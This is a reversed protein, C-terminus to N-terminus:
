LSLGCYYMLSAPTGAIARGLFRGKAQKPNPIFKRPTSDAKATMVRRMAVRLAGRHSAYGTTTVAAGRIRGARVAFVYARSGVRRLFLGGGISPTGQLRNAPRGVEIGDALRKNATSGVLQVVGAKDLVAVDAAHTNGKGLVCWSWALNRQQPQGASKLLDVWHAGLHIPGRGTSDIEGDGRFCGHAKVGSTREWMELYAEAGAMMDKAIQPGGVRKLDAFWDAYLGYHAVGDKTFDFTRNGTKQRDFTVKGDYSKFPYTISGKASHGPQHSLGGLDAGYGWGFDYPTEVPRYDQWDKVYDDTASHGPFALGGLKWVRPWNGPDMWGHPSIVGSYHHSELLTLTDNVGAQSMHDPNVIWGRKMMQEEAFRGLDTLGRTNCHPPPPYQPVTSDQIGQPAFISNVAAAITPDGFSIENDHLPGTCTKADWFSGASQKNGANIVYSAIGSDFRVGTLPNDFKNLLLSSRVGVKDMEDIERAIQARNCSSTQWGRCDFPESTEIELVVAMRGSNIVKRADFPNTVIQFFGKGPGGAQADVYNQLEKIELFGRRVGDMENCDVKHDPLTNCLVRNENVSMVMLRLGAMWVRQVWRYYEGEYLLDNPSQNPFNPWESTDHPHVPSGYGLTNQVPAASGQPGYRDACDPLAYTIGYADWPKGCRLTGGFSNWAMWHNHGELIGKVAGFETAGKFAKGTANLPAEPFAACGTAPAFTVTAISKKTSQPALTFGSGSPALEFDAAPSPQDAPALKGDSGATLFKSDKTYLMYRGLATAKMRVQQAGDIGSASYCGNAFSYRDAASAGAPAAGVAAAILAVLAAPKTSM